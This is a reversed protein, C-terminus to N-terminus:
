GRRESAISATLVRVASTGPKPIKDRALYADIPEATQKGTSAITNKVMTM